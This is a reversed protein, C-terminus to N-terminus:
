IPVKCLGINEVMSFDRSNGFHFCDHPPAKSTRNM